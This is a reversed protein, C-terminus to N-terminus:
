LSWRLKEAKANKGKFFKNFNISLTTSLNGELLSFKRKDSKLIQLYQFELKIFDFTYGSTLAPEFIYHDQGLLDNVNFFLKSMSVDYANNSDVFSNFNYGLRTLRSSLTIYTKNSFNYGLTPQIFQRNLGLKYYSNGLGLEGVGLGLNLATYIGGKQKRYLILENDWIYDKIFRDSEGFESIDFKNFSSYVGLHDTFAYGASIGSQLFFLGKNGSLVADGKEEFVMVTQKTPLYFYTGCSQLVFPLLFILYRM